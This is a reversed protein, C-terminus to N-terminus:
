HLGEAFINVVGLIFKDDDYKMSFNIVIFMEHNHMISLMLPPWLSSSKVIGECGDQRQM